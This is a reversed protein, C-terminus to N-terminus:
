EMRNRKNLEERKNQNINVDEKRKNLNELFHEQAMKKKRENRSGKESEIEILKKKDEGKVCRM